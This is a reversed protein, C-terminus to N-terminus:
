KEYLYNLYENIKMCINAHGLKSLHHGDDLVLLDLNEYSYLNIFRDKKGQSLIENYEGVQLSYDGINNILHKCPPMIELFIIKECINDLKKRINEINSKFNDIPVWPRGFKRYYKQNRLVNKILRTNHIGFKELFRFIRRSFIRPTCDVIGVQIICLNFTKKNEYSSYYYNIHNAENLVDVTTSGGRGRNFVRIGNREILSPWIDNLYIENKVRPLTLSDGLVLINKTNNNIHSM